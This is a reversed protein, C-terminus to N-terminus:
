KNTSINVVRPQRNKSSKRTVKIEEDEDYTVNDDLDISHDKAYQEKNSTCGNTTPRKTIVYEKNSNINAQKTSKTTRTRAKAQEANLTAGIGAVVGLATGIMLAKKIIQTSDHKSDM